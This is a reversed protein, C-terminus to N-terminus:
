PTAIIDTAALCNYSDRTQGYGFESSLFGTVTPRKPRRVKKGNKLKKTKPVLVKGYFWNDYAPPLATERLEFTGNKAVPASGLFRTPRVTSFGNVCYYDAATVVVNSVLVARGKATTVDFTLTTAPSPSDGTAQGSFHM